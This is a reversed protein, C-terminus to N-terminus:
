SRQAVLTPQTRKLARSPASNRLPPDFESGDSGSLDLDECAEWCVESVQYGGRFLQVVEVGVFALFGCAVFGPRTPLWAVGLPRTGCGNWGQDLALAARPAFPQWPAASASARATAASRLARARAASAGAVM